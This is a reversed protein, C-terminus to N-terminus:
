AGMGGSDSPMSDAGNNGHDHMESGGMHSGGVIAGGVILGGLLATRARETSIEKDLDAPAGAKAPGRRFLGKLGDLFGKAKAM